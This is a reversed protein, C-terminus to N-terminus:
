MIGDDGDIAAAAYMNQIQKHCKEISVQLTGTDIM